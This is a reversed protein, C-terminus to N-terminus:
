RSPQPLLFLPPVGSAPPLPPVVLVPLPPEEPVVALAPRAPPTAPPATAMFTGHSETLWTKLHAPDVPPNMIGPNENASVQQASGAVLVQPAIDLPIHMAGGAFASLHGVNMPPAPHQTFLSRQPMSADSKPIPQM